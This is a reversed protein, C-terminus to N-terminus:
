AVKEGKNDLYIMFEDESLKEEKVDKGKWDCKKCEWKGVEGIVVGVKESGCKPCKRIKFTKASFKAKKIGKTSSDNSQKSSTSSENKQMKKNYDAESDFGELIWDPTKVKPKKTM